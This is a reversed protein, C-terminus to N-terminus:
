AFGEVSRLTPAATEDTEARAAFWAVVDDAPMAPSYYFGQAVDCGIETLRDRIPQTEVGEAVVKMRLRHALGVIACVIADDDPDDTMTMVFSKDIKVEDVPLRKLYALSSHGVGLDDVSLRVGARRLRWLVDVTRAIDDMLATETIELTLRGAPVRKDALLSTLRDTFADDRLVRTSINVSMSIDLGQDLWIRCQVLSTELVWDTLPGILGTQEAVAIFEDPSVMGRQPHNWRALVEVGAGSGGDARLDIKPQYHLHLAGTNIAGRLEAVLTLRSTDNHDIAPDYVSVAGRRQKADYMAVDAHRLLDDITTGHEPALAIGVSADVSVDVSHVQLPHLLAERAAAAASAASSPDDLRLLMTFEDGGLRAICLAQPVAAQLRGGVDCLLADGAAHGLTDNIDKFRDLDFLLVALSAHEALAEVLVREFKLRNPMGTLSDHTAQHETETARLRLEDALRGNALATSAHQALAALVQQEDDGFARVATTGGVTLRGVVRGEMELPAAVRDAGRTAVGPTSSVPTSALTKSMTVTAGDFRVVVTEGDDHEFELEATAGDLTQAAGVVIQQTVTDIRLDRNLRSAVDNLRQLAGHRKQLRIQSRQAVILFGAVVIVAWLGSKSVHVVCLAVLAFSAQAIATLLSTAVTRAATSPSPRVGDAWIVITVALSSILAITAVALVAAAWTSQSQLSHPATLQWVWLATTVGLAFQALNFALKVPQQRRIVGYAIAAGVLRASLLAAPSMYFLGIVLPIDAFAFTHAHRGVNVHVVYAEGITCAAALLLWPALGTATLDDAPHLTVAWLSAATTAIGLILLWVRTERALRM